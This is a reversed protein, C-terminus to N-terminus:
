RYSRAPQRCWADQGCTSDWGVFRHRIHRTKGLLHQGAESRRLVARVRALLERLSFPKTVYDDAGLEPTIVRDTIIVPVEPPSGIQRMLDLGDRCRPQDMDTRGIFAMIIPYPSHFLM